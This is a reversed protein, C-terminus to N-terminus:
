IKVRQTESASATRKLSNKQLGVSNRSREEESAQTLSRGRGRVVEWHCKIFLRKYALRFGRMRLCYIWPNMASNILSLTRAWDYVLGSNKGAKFSRLFILPFWSVLFFAIVIAITMTVRREVEDRLKRNTNRISSMRRQKKIKTVILLYCVVIIVFSLAFVVVTFYSTVRRSITMRLIAYIVPFLWAAVLVVALRKKTIIKRFDHPKLVVICRDISILCLHLVSAGCCANAILRFLLEVTDTCTARTSMALYAVFLPQALVTVLLDAVALSVLIFNAITRLSRTTFVSGCVLLNGVTGLLAASVSLAIMVAGHALPTFCGPVTGNETSASRSDNLHPVNM